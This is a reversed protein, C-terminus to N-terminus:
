RQPNFNRFCNLAITTIDFLHFSSCFFLDYSLLSSIHFSSFFLSLASSFFLSFLLFLSLISLNTSSALTFKHSIYTINVSVSVSVSASLISGYAQPEFSLANSNVDSITLSSLIYCKVLVICCLVRQRLYITGLLYDGCYLVTCHLAICYLVACCLVACCLVACPLTSHHV